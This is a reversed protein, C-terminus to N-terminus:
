DSYLWNAEKLPDGGLFKLKPALSHAQYIAGVRYGGDSLPPPIFPIKGPTWQMEWEIAREMRLEDDTKQEVWQAGTWVTMRGTLKDLRVRGRWEYRASELKQEYARRHRGNATLDGILWGIVFGACLAVGVILGVEFGFRRPAVTEM